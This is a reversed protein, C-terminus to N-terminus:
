LLSGVSPAHLLEKVPREPDLSDKVAKFAKAGTGNQVACLLRTVHTRTLPLQTSKAQNATPATPHSLPPTHCHHPKATTPAAASPSLRHTNPQGKSTHGCPQVVHVGRQGETRATFRSTVCVLFAVWGVAPDNRQSANVQVACQGENCM